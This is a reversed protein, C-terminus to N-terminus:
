ILGEPLGDIRDKALRPDDDPKLPSFPEWRLCMDPPPSDGRHPITNVKHMLEPSWYIGLAGDSGAVPEVCLLRHTLSQRMEVVTVIHKGINLFTIFDFKGRDFSGIADLSAKEVRRTCEDVTESQRPYAFFKNRGAISNVLCAVGKRILVASLDPNESKLNSSHLVYLIDPQWRVGELSIRLGFFAGGVGKEILYDHIGYSQVVALAQALVRESHKANQLEIEKRMLPVIFKETLDHFGSNLSGLHIIGHVEHAIDSQSTDLALLFPKGDDFFAFLFHVAEDVPFPANQKVADELAKRPSDGENLRAELIETLARGRKVDGAFTAAASKGLQTIKLAREEVLPGTDKGSETGQKEGFSTTDCQLPKFSTIATDAILYVANLTKWGVCYTM